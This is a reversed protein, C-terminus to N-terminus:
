PDRGPPSRKWTAISTTRRSILEELSLDPLPAFNRIMTGMM